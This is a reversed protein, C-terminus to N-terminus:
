LFLATHPFKRDQFLPSPIESIFFIFITRQKKRWGTWLVFFPSLLKNALLIIWAQVDVFASHDFADIENVEDVRAVGDFLSDFVVFHFGVFEDEEVDRSRGIFASM